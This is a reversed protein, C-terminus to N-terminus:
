LAHQLSQPGSLFVQYLSKSGKPQLQIGVGGRDDPHFQLAKLPPAALGVYPLAETSGAAKHMQTNGRRLGHLQEGGGAVAAARSGGEWPLPVAAVTGEEVALWRM